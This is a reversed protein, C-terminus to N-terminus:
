GLPTVVTDYRFGPNGHILVSNVHVLAKDVEGQFVALEATNDMQLVAIHQHYAPSVPQHNVGIAKGLARKRFKLLEEPFFARIQVNGFLGKGPSVQRRANKNGRHVSLFM